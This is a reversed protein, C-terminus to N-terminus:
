HLTKQVMEAWVENPTKWDLCERLRNNL